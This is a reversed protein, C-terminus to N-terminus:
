KFQVAKVTLSRSLLCTFQKADLDPGSTRYFATGKAIVDYRRAKQGGIIAREKNLNVEVVTNNINHDLGGSPLRSLAADRCLQAAKTRNAEIDIGTGEPKITHWYGQEPSYSAPEYRGTGERLYCEVLQPSIGDIAVFTVDPHQARALEVYHADIQFPVARGPITRHARSACLREKAPDNGINGSSVMEARASGVGFALTSLALALVNLRM